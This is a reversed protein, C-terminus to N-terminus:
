TCEGRCKMNFSIQEFEKIFFFTLQSMPKSELRYQTLVTTFFAYIWSSFYFFEFMRCIEQQLTDSAAIQIIIIFYFTLHSSM